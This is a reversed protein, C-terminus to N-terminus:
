LSYSYFINGKFHIDEHNNHTAKHPNKCFHIKAKCNFPLKQCLMDNKNM